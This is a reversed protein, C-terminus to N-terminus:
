NLSFVTERMQRFSDTHPIFATQHQFGNWPKEGMNFLRPEDETTSILQEIDKM